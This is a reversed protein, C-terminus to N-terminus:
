GGGEIGGRLFFFAVGASVAGAFPGIWYVAQDSFYGSFVSPGLSRAPNFSAGTLPGVLLILCSLTLGVLAARRPTSRILASAGLASISLAFTGAFELALGETFSVGAGLETSGLNAPLIHSGFVLRLSAGALLAGALQALIYPVLLRPKLTRAVACAVSVAPNIHAGSLGGLAIIAGAVTLGFVSAVLVIGDWRMPLSSESVLVVSSSGLLVLIYTGVMESIVQSMHSQGPPAKLM